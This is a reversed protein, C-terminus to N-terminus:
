GHTICVLHTIPYNGSVRKPPLLPLVRFPYRKHLCDLLWVFDSYRRVVKSGRRPSSVEYNHHQFLFMGEKEPMLTVTINEESPNGSRASVTPRLAPPSIPNMSPDQGAGGDEGGFPNVIQQSRPPENFGSPTQNNGDFYGWGAGPSAVPNTEQRLSGGASAVTATTYSSMTRGAIATESPSDYGANGNTDRPVSSSGNTQPAPRHAHGKHLDPSGWPDDADPYQMTPPPQEINRPKSPSPSPSSTEKAPTAPAQPPKAALESVPPMVPGATLGALKPTPLDLNFLAILQAGWLQYPVYDACSSRSRATSPSRM